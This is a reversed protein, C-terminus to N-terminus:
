FNGQNFIAAYVSEAIIKIQAFFELLTLVTNEGNRRTPKETHHTEEVEAEEEDEEYDEDEDHPIENAKTSNTSNAIQTVLRDFKKDAKFSPNTKILEPDLPEKTSNSEEGNAKHDEEVLELKTVSPKVTTTSTTKSVRLRSFTSPDKATVLIFHSVVPSTIRELVNKAIVEYVNTSEKKYPANRDTTYVSVNESEGNAQKTSPPRPFFM